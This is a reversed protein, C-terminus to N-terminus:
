PCGSGTRGLCGGGASHRRYRQCRRTGLGLAGSLKDSDTKDQESPSPAPNMRILKGAKEEWAVCSWRRRGTIAPRRAAERRGRSSEPAPLSRMWSGGQLCTSGLAAWRAPQQQSRGQSSHCISGDADLSPGRHLRPPPQRGATGATGPSACSGWPEREARLLPLHSLPTCPGAGYHPSDRGHGDMGGRLGEAKM